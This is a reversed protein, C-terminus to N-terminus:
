PKILTLILMLLRLIHQQKRYTDEKFTYEQLQQVYLLLNRAQVVSHSSFNAQQV